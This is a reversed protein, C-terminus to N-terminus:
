LLENNFDEKHGIYNILAYEIEELRSYYELRSNYELRSKTSKIEEIYDRKKM